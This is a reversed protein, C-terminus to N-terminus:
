KKIIPIWVECLIGTDVTYYEELEPAEAHEYGMSQLWEPVRKWIESIEIHKEYIESIVGWLLKPVDYIEFNDPVSADSCEAAVMYRFVGESPQYDYLVGSLQKGTKGVKLEYQALEFMKDTIGEECCQKLFKPIAGNNESFNVTISKGFVKFAEREVIKYNMEKAGRLTLYFYLRPYAKLVVESERAFSPTVGHLKCFARSFADPSEYGFKFALEVIKISSNQLAQAALTLRRRRIYESLSINTLFSFMKQFHYSSCMSIKGLEEYSIKDELNQEIYAMAREMRELWQM